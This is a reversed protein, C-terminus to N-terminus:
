FPKYDTKNWKDLPLVIQPRHGPYHISTGHRAFNEMDSEYYARNETDHIVIKRLGKEVLGGFIARDVAWGNEKRFLHVSKRRQSFFIGKSFSGINKVGADTQLMVNSM